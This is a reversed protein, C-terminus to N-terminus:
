NEQRPHMAPVKPAPKRNPDLARDRQAQVERATIPGTPATM